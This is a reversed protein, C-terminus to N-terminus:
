RCSAPAGTRDLGPSADPKALMGCGVDAGSQALRDTDAPLRGARASAMVEDSGIIPLRFAYGVEVVVTGSRGDPALRLRCTRVHAGNRRAVAGAEDCPRGGLGIQDAAALAALDAASGARHRALVGLTRVTFVGAVFVLLVCCAIVWITASGSDSRRSTM